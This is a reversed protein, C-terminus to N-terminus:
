RIRNRLTLLPANPAREGGYDITEDCLVNLWQQKFWPVTFGNVYESVSAIDAIDPHPPPALSSSLLHTSPVNNRSRLFDEIRVPSVPKLVINHPTNETFQYPQYRFPIATHESGPHVYSPNPLILDSPSTASSPQPLSSPQGSSPSSHSTQDSPVTLGSSAPLHASSQDSKVYLASSAPSPSCTPRLLPSSRLHPSSPIRLRRVLPFSSTALFLDVNRDLLKFPQSTSPFSLHTRQTTIIISRETIQASNHALLM